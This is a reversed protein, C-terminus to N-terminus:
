IYFTNQVFKLTFLGEASIMKDIQNFRHLIDVGKQWYRKDMIGIMNDGVAIIGVTALVHFIKLSETQQPVSGEPFYEAVIMRATTQPTKFAECWGRMTVNLFAQILQSQKEIMTDTVFYVGAYFDYGYKFAPIVHTEYGKEKISLAEDNIFGPHVDIRDELM